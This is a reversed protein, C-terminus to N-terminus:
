TNAFMRDAVADLETRQQALYKEEAEDAVSKEDLPTPLFDVNAIVHSKDSLANHVSANLVRLQSSVDHLIWENEGWHNGRV